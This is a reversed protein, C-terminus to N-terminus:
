RPAAERVAPSTLMICIPPGCNMRWLCKNTWIIDEHGKLHRNETVVKLVYATRWINFLPLRNCQATLSKSACSWSYGGWWDSPPQLMTLLVSLCRLWAPVCAPVGVSLCVSQRSLIRPIHQVHQLTISCAALKAEDVLSQVKGPYCVIHYQSLSNVIGSQFILWWLTENNGDILYSICMLSM